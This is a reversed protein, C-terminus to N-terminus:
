RALESLFGMNRFCKHLTIIVLWERINLILCHVVRGHDRNRLQQEIWKTITRSHFKRSKEKAMNRRETLDMEKGGGASSDASNCYYIATGSHLCALNQVSMKLFNFHLAIIQTFHCINSRTRLYIIGVFVM